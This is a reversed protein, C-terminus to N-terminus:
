FKGRVADVEKKFISAPMITGDKKLFELYRVLGALIACQPGIRVSDSVAPFLHHPRKLDTM